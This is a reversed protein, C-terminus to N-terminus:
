RAAGTRAPAASSPPVAVSEETAAEVAEAAAAEDAASAAMSAARAESFEETAETVDLTQVPGTPVPIAEGEADALGVLLARGDPLVRFDGYKAHVFAAGQGEPFFYADTVLVWNNKLRKLPLVIEGQGAGEKPGPLRKVRAYGQADLSAIVRATAPVFKGLGEHVTQPLEFNLAMYDGQMLSRPDVPVLPVLIRQGHAIVQEKGRVDWNVLGFVLAAGALVWALQAKSHRTDGQPAGDVVTATAFGKRLGLVGLLLLGGLVALGLGKTALSWELGYYFQCLMWLVALACLVAIRWRAGVLAAAAIVAVPALGISFWAGAALLSGAWLVLYQAEAGAAGTSRWRRAVLWASLAVVVVALWRGATLAVLWAEKSDTSDYWFWRSWGFRSGLEAALVGIVAADAFAAWGASAFWRGPQQLRQPETWIWIGWALAMALGTLQLPMVWPAWTEVTTLGVYLAVAFGVGMIRKIWRLRAIAGGLLHLAALCGAVLFLGVRSDGLDSVLCMALLGSSMSWLVLVMCAGFVQEVHRLMALAAALGLVGLVYGEVSGGFFIREGFGLFLLGAIPLVCVQAGLLALVIVWASPEESEESPVEGQVLGRQQAAPWWAPQTSLFNM